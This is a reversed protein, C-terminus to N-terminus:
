HRNGIRRITEDVEEPLDLGQHELFEIVGDSIEKDTPPTEKEWMALMEPVIEIPTTMFAAVIEPPVNEPTCKLDRAALEKFKAIQSDTPGRHPAITM